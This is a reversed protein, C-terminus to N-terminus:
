KVSMALFYFIVVDQAFHIGLAWVVGRTEVMSKAWIFGAITAMLVGLWGSPQGFYHALGFFVATLWVGERLSLVNRLQALPVCRFQFEENAANLAATAIAWPFLQWHQTLQWFNPRLNSFLFAVMAMAFILVILPGFHWWRLPSRFWLIREPKVRANLQGVRLFLDDRTFGRGIFATLMLLAGLANLLRSVFIRPGWDLDDMLNQVPAWDTLIPAILSWGLRLIAITLLFGGLVRLRSSRSVIAAAVVLVLVQAVPVSYSDEGASRSFIMPLMSGALM